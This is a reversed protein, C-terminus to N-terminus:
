GPSAFKFSLVVPETGLLAPPMCNWGLSVVLIFKVRSPFSPTPFFMVGESFSSTSPLILILSPAVAPYRGTESALPTIVQVFGSLMIVPDVEDEQYLALEVNDGFLM